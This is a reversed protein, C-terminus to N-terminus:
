LPFLFRVTTPRCFHPIATACTELVLFNFVLSSINCNHSINLFKWFSLIFHTKSLAQWDKCYNNRVLPHCSHESLTQWWKMIVFVTYYTKKPINVFVVTNTTNRLILILETIIHKLHYFTFNNFVCFCVLYSVLWLSFTSLASRKWLVVDTKFHGPKRDSWLFFFFLDPGSTASGFQSPGATQEVKNRRSVHVVPEDEGSIFNQLQWKNLEEEKTDQATHELWFHTILLLSINQLSFNVNKLHLYYLNFNSM